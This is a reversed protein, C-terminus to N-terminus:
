FLINLAYILMGAGLLLPVIVGFDTRLESEKDRNWGLIRIFVSLSFALVLYVVIMIILDIFKDKNKDELNFSLEYAKNFLLIIAITILNFYVSVDTKTIKVYRDRRSIVKLLMTFLIAGAGLVFSRLTPNELSM